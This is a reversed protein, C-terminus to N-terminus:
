GAQVPEAALLSALGSIRERNENLLGLAWNCSHCLAHRVAGTHHCHDVDTAPNSCGPNDCLCGADIRERIRLGADGYKRWANAHSQCLGHVGRAHLECGAAACVGGRQAVTRKRQAPVHALADGYLRVRQYHVNCLNRALCMAKCGAVACPKRQSEQVPVDARVDGHTMLRKYHASCLGRARLKTRTCGDVVCTGDKM